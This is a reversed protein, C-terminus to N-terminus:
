VDFDEGSDEDLDALQLLIRADSTKPPLSMSKLSHALRGMRSMWGNLFDEMDTSSIFGDHDCDISDFVQRVKALESADMKSASLLLVVRMVRPVRSFSRLGHTLKPTANFNQYGRMVEGVASGACGGIFSTSRGHKKIFDSKLAGGASLRDRPSVVLLKRILDRAFRLNRAGWGQASPFYITFNAWVRPYMSMERPPRFPLGGVLLYYLMMGVSWCDCQRGYVGGWVEPAMFEPTGGVRSMGTSEKSFTALGFDILKVDSGSGPRIKMVNAPKIDRHLVKCVVAQGSKADRADYVLGFGGKGIPRVLRYVAQLPEGQARSMRVRSPRLGSSRWFVECM